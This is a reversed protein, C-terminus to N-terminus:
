DALGTKTKYLHASFGIASFIGQFSEFVKLFLIINYYSYETNVTWEWLTRFIYFCCLTTVRIIIRRLPRLINDGRHGDTQGNAIERGSQLEQLGQLIDFFGSVFTLWVSVVHLVFNRIAPNLTLTMSLPWLGYSKNGKRETVRSCRSPNRLFRVYNNVLSLRHASAINQVPWINLIWSWMQDRYQFWPHLLLLRWHLGHLGRRDCTLTLCFNYAVPLFKPNQFTRHYSFLKRM